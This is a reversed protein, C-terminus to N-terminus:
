LGTNTPPLGSNRLDRVDPMVKIAEIVFGVNLCYEPNSKVIALANERLSAIIYGRELERGAKLMELDRETSAPKAM